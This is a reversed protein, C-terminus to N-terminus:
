QFSIHSFCRLMTALPRIQSLVFVLEMTFVYTLRTM